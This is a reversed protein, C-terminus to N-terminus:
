QPRLAGRHMAAAAPDDGPTPSRGPAGFALLLSLILAAEFVACRALLRRRRRVQGPLSM